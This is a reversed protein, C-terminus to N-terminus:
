DIASAGRLVVWLCSVRPVPCAFGATGSQAFIGDLRGADLLRM